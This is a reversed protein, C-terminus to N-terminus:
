ISLGGFDGSPYVQEVYAAIPSKIVNKKDDSVKDAYRVWLYDWGKKNAVTLDGV